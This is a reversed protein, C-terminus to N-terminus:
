KREGQTVREWLAELERTSWHWDGLEVTGIRGDIDHVTIIITRSGIRSYFMTGQGAGVDGGAFEFGAEEIMTQAEEFPMGPRIRHSLDVAVNTYSWWFIAGGGIALVACALVIVEWQSRKM